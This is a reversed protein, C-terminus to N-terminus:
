VEDNKGKKYYKESIMFIINIILIGAIIIGGLLIVSEVSVHYFGSVMLLLVVGSLMTIGLLLTKGVALIYNVLITLFTLPVVYCCVAPLYGIAVLYRQGFLIGIVYESGILMVAACLLAMGGGYLFARRLLFTTDKGKEKLEVAMPFLAATVASSVYMAIKGVVAASSYIGTEAESFYMKVLLVDGNTLLILVGQVVAAALCYHIFEKFDIHHKTVAGLAQKVYGVIYKGGFVIGAGTGIFLAALVGYVRWGCIILIISFILKGLAVLVNQVGYATFKQMGQLTGQVLSSLITVAAILIAAAVYGQEMKFLRSFPGLGMLGIVIIILDIVCVLKVLTKLMSLRWDDDNRGAGMAMYRASILTIITNPIAMVQILSLVANVTGYDEVTMLNGVIIQFLYNSVNAAMM